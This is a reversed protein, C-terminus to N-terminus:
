IINSLLKHNSELIEEWKGHGTLTIERAQEQDSFSIQIELRDSPLIDYIIEPWEILSVGYDFGEELGLEYIEEQNKLRYLDYHWINIKDLKYIHLLNFTPSNVEIEDKSLSRIFYQIFSTKGAGLEGSFTIIDGIKAIKALRSAFLNTQDLNSLHIQTKHM